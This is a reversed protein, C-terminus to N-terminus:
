AWRLRLTGDPHGEVTTGLKRGERVLTDCLWQAQEPDARSVRFRRMCTPTMVLERLRGNRPDIVPFYMVSLEGRYAEHGRIGEYDTLFDGCGYLVLKEGHVEIGKVHHSSHGHLLDAGARDLLAHAFRREQASTDFGWNPGWHLSVVAFDGDRKQTSIARAIFDVSDESLDDLLSVGPQRATARWAAPVGSSELCFAHVLVRAGGATEIMAPSLAEATDRGAGATRIGAGSLTQITELLGERGWDMAHNNALVCCDARLATLCPVNAPHMRYHVGKGPWAKGSTTVATELNVIRADPQRRELEALADGWVYAFDVPADIAGSVEQAFEVYQKASRVYPEFLRPDGSHPLIQDIGRGTMVDGCLFLTILPSSTQSEGPM